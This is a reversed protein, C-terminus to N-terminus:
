WAIGSAIAIGYLNMEVGGVTATTAAVSSPPINYGAFSTSTSLGKDATWYQYEAAV